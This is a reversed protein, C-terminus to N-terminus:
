AKQMVCTFRRRQDWKEIHSRWCVEYSLSNLTVPGFNSLVVDGQAVLKLFIDKAKTRGLDVGLSRKDRHGWAFSATIDVAQRSGDRFARNEVKIM